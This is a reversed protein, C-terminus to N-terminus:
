GDDEYDLSVLASKAKPLNMDEAYWRLTRVVEVLADREAETIMVIGPFMSSGTRKQLEVEFRTM